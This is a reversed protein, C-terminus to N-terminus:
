NGDIGRQRRRRRAAQMAADIQQARIREVNQLMAAWNDGALAAINLQNVNEPALAAQLNAPPEPVHGIAARFRLVPPRAPPALRPRARRAFRYGADRLWNVYASRPRRCGRPERFVKLDRIYPACHARLRLLHALSTEGAERPLAMYRMLRRIAKKVTFDVDGDPTRLVVRIRSPM